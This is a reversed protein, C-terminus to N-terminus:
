RRLAKLFQSAWFYVNNRQVRRRLDSMRMRQEDPGMAMASHIAQGMQDTDRPNVIVAKTLENAAGAFQSLVLVGDAQTRCAVYEKAVLNMGDRLPTVLMVDAASYYAALEERELNKRFYHVAVRGPVGHEGNIRGVMREVTDRLSGYDGINERSPVAIQIFVCQDV